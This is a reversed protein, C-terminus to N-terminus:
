ADDVDSGTSMGDSSLECHLLNVFSGQKLFSPKTTALFRYGNSGIFGM